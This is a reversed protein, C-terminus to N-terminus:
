DAEKLNLIAQELSEQTIDSHNAVWVAKKHHILLAQPSEHKVDLLPVLGRAVPRAGIVDIKSLFLSQASVTKVFEDFQNEAFHSVPCVPSYKFLLVPISQSKELLNEFEEM